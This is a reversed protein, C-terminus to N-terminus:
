AYQAEVRNERMSIFFSYLLYITFIWYFARRFITIQWFKLFLNFIWGQEEILFCLCGVMVFIEKSALKALVRSVTLTRHVSEMTVHIRFVITADKLFSSFIRLSINWKSTSIHQLEVLTKLMYLSIIWQIFCANDEQLFILFVNVISMSKSVM